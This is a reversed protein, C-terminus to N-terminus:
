SIADEISMRPFIDLKGGRTINCIEFGRKQSEELACRYAREMEWVSVVINNEKQSNEGVHAKGGNLIINGEEDREVPYSHDMGILYIRKFGLYVAIQICFYTVTGISYIKDAVDYSFRPNRLYKRNGDSNLFIFKDSSIYKELNKQYICNQKIFFYKEANMEALHERIEPNRIMGRDDIAYYTPRWKTDTFVRYITNVGFSSIGAAYIRDLDEATLSPGNGVIVCSEGKHIEALKQMRKKERKKIPLYLAKNVSM